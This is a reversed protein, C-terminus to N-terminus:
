WNKKYPKFKQDFMSLCCSLEMLLLGRKNRSKQCFVPFLFGFVGGHGVLNQGSLPTGLRKLLHHALLGDGLRELIGDGRVAHSV